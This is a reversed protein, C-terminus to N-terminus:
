TRISASNAAYENVIESCSTLNPVVLRPIYVKVGVKAAAEVLAVKSQLHDLNTGMVNVLVDCGRLANEVSAPDRYDVQFYKIKGAALASASSPHRSLSHIKHISDDVALIPLVKHGFNGSAGVVAVVVM